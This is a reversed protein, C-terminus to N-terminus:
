AACQFAVGAAAPLQSLDSLMTFDQLARKHAAVHRIPNWPHCELELKEALQRLAVPHNSVGGSVHICRLSVTESQARISALIPRLEAAIHDTLGDLLLADAEECAARESDDEHESSPIMPLPIEGWPFDVTRILTVTDAAGGLVTMRGRGFDVALFAQSSREQSAAFANLIALPTVQVAAIDYGLRRLIAEVRDIAEQPIACAVYPALVDADGFSALRECASVHNQVGDHFIQKADAKGRQLQKVLEREAEPEFCRLLAGDPWMAVACRRSRTRLRRLLRRLVPELSEGNEALTEIAYDRVLMEGSEPDFQLVVAKIRSAGLDLGIIQPHFLSLM